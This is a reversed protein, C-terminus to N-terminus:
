QNNSLILLFILIFIISLILIWNGSGAKKLKKMKITEEDTSSVIKEVKRKSHKLFFYNGFYGLITGYVLLWLVRLSIEIDPSDGLRNVLFEEIKSEVFAVGIIILSLIYLRRYLVWFIGFFFAGINFSFRKGNELDILKPIFYGKRKGFYIEFYEIKVDGINENKAEEIEM